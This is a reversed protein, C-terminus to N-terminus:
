VSETHLMLIKCISSATDSYDFEVYLVQTILVLMIFIVSVEPTPTTQVGIDVPEVVDRAHDTICAYTHDSDSADNERVVSINSVNYNQYFQFYCFAYLM